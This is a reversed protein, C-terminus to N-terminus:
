GLESRIATAIAAEALRAARQWGHGADKVAATFHPSLHVSVAIEVPLPAGGPGGAASWLTSALTSMLERRARRRGAEIAALAPPLDHRTALEWFGAGCSDNMRHMAESLEGLWQRWDGGGYGPLLEAYRELGASVAGALLEERTPFLRFLTRRSVGAAAAIEEVTVDLGHDAVFLRASRLIRTVTVQRKEDALTQGPNTV